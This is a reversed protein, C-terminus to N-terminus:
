LRSNCENIYKKTREAIEGKTRLQIDASERLLKLANAYNGDIMETRGINHKISGLLIDNTCLSIAKELHAKADKSENKLISDVGKHNLLSAYNNKFIYKISDVGCITIAEEYAKSAESFNDRSNNDLLMAYQNLIYSYMTCSEKDDYEKFYSKVISINRKAKEVANTTKYLQYLGLYTDQVIEKKDLSQSEIDKILKNYEYEAESYLAINKLLNARIERYKCCDEIHLSIMETYKEYTAKADRAQFSSDSNNWYELFCVQAAHHVEDLMATDKREECIQSLLDYIQYGAAYKDLITEFYLLARRTTTYAEDIKGILFQSRGLAEYVSLNEESSMDKVQNDEILKIYSKLVPICGDYDQTFYLAAGYCNLFRIKTLRSNSALCDSKITNLYKVIPKYDENFSDSNVVTEISDLKADLWAQGYVINTSLFLLITILYKLGTM